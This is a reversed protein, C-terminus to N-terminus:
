PMFGSRSGPASANSALNFAIPQNTYPIHDIKVGAMWKFLEPAIHTPSGIGASAYTLQNPKAKALAVLDKVSKVPLSPHVLLIM